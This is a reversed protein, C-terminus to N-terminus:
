THPRGAAVDDDVVVVVVVAVVVVAAVTTHRLAVMLTNQALKAPSSLSPVRIILGEM